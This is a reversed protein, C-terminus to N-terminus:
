RDHVGVESECLLEPQAGVREPDEGSPVALGHESGGSEEADFLDLTDEILEFRQRRLTREDHAGGPIATVPLPRGRYIRRREDSDFESREESRWTSGEIESSARSSVADPQRLTAPFRGHEVCGLDGDAEGGLPGSLGPEIESEDVAVEGGSREGSTGPIEHEDDVVKLSVQESLGDFQKGIAAQDSERDCRYPVQLAPLSRRAGVEELLALRRGEDITKLDEVIGFVPRHFVTM